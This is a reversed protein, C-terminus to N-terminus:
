QPVTFGRAIFVALADRTITVTPRYTGDAYGSVVIGACDNYGSAVYEIAQRYEEALGSIDSFTPTAPPSLARHHAGSARAIFMAMDARNVLGNPQYNSGYGGVIGRSYCYEIYKYAWHSTPVDAFTPTGPPTYGLRM